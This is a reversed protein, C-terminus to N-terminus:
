DFLRHRQLHIKSLNEQLNQFPFHLCTPVWISSLDTGTALFSKNFFRARAAASARHKLDPPGSIRKFRFDSKKFLRDFLLTAIPVGLFDINESKPKNEFWSPGLKSGVQEGFGRWFREFFADFDVEFGSEKILREAGM